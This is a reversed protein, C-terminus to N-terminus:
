TAHAEYTTINGTTTANPSTTTVVTLTVATATTSPPSPIPHTPEESRDRDRDRLAVAPPPTPAPPFNTQTAFPNHAYSHTHLHHGRRPSRDDRRDALQAEVSTLRDSVSALMGMMREFQDANLHMGVGAVARATAAQRLASGGHSATRSMNPRSSHPSHNMTARPDFPSVDREEGSASSSALPSLQQQQQQAAALAELSSPRRFHPSLKADPTPPSAMAGVMSARDMVTKGRQILITQRNTRLGSAARHAAFDSEGFRIRGAPTPIIEPNNTPSLAAVVSLLDSTVNSTASARRTLRGSPPGSEPQPTDVVIGLLDQSSRNHGNHARPSPTPAAPLSLGTGTPGASTRGNANAAAVAAAAAALDLGGLTSARKPNLHAAGRRSDAESGGNMTGMPPITTNRRLESVSPERDAVVDVQSYQHSNRMSQHRGHVVHSDGHPSLASEYASQRGSDAGSPPRTRTPTDSGLFDAAAQPNAPLSKTRLLSFRGREVGAKALGSTKASVTRVEDLIELQKASIKRQEEYSLDLEEELVNFDLTMTELKDYLGELMSRFLQESHYRRDYAQTQKRATQFDFIGQLMLTKHLLLHSRALINFKQRAVLRIAKKRFHYYKWSRSICRSAYYKLVSSTSSRDLFDVMRGEYPLLTLKQHVAAVLVATVTIGIFAALICIARGGSTAPTTDGYGVATITIMVVWVGTGFTFNRDSAEREFVWLSYSCGIILTCVVPALTLLPQSFLM